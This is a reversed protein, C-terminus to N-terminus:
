LPSNYELYYDQLLSWFLGTYKGNAERIIIESKEISANTRKLEAMLRFVQSQKKNRVTILSKLAFGNNNSLTLFSKMEQEPYLIFCTGDSTLLRSIGELLEEEPLLIAHVAENKSQNTGLQSASFFPPNCVITDYLEAAHEQLPRHFCTIRDTWPANLFNISSEKFASENVDIAEINCFENAQAIMLSLLGTGTGIDLIRDSATDSKLKDAIWAGFLCADTTVKMGSLAQDIRFKKFQFYNNRM